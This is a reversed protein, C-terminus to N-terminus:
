KVQIRMEYTELDEYEGLQTQDRDETDVHLIEKTNIKPNSKYGNALPKSKVLQFETDNRVKEYVCGNSDIRVHFSKYVLNEWDLVDNRSYDKINLTVIDYMGAFRFSEPFSFYMNRIHFITDANYKKCLLKLFKKVTGSAGTITIRLM